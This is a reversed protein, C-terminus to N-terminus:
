VLSLGNCRNIQGTAPHKSQETPILIDNRGLLSAEKAVVRSVIYMTGKIPKPLNIIKSVQKTIRIGDIVTIDEETSVVRAVIGTAPIVKTRGNVLKIEIRHPTLNIWNM